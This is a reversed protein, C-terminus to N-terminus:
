WNIRQDGGFGPAEKPWQQASHLTRQGLRLLSAARIVSAHIIWVETEGNAGAAQRACAADWVQGVRDMVANVSEGGGCRYHGFDETWAQLETAPIDAWPRGEWTGFHMEQLRPEAKYALDHRLWSLEKALLECRQLPSYLVLAPGTIQEALRKAALRTAEPDAAVDLAGYCHGPAIQPAAHRVLWLPM